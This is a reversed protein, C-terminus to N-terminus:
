AGLADKLTKLERSLQDLQTKLELLQDVQSQLGTLRQRLDANETKMEDLASRFTSELASLKDDSVVSRTPVPGSTSAGFDSGSDNYSKRLQALEEQPYFGHTLVTGRKGEPTLYVVMKREKLKTLITRLADLDAITDMRSARGRLEGETQPGRLLLETLVAAEVGNVSWADYILHRYREVRGSGTVRMVLGSEKLRELAEEVDFDDFQTIPDRNSKQNCGTLIANMSLPYSDPTTKAKEVLVGLVRRQEMPLAPLNPKEPPTASSNETTSSM